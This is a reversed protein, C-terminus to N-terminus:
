TACSSSTAGFASRCGRGSWPVPGSSWCTRSHRASSASTRMNRIVLYLIGTTLAFAAAWAGLRKMYGNKVRPGEQALIEARLSNLAQTATKPDADQELGVRALSFLKVRYSDFRKALKASPNGFLRELCSQGTTEPFIIQLITLTEEVAGKLELQDAPVETTGRVRGFVIERGGAADAADPLRLMFRGPQADVRAVDAKLEGLQVLAAQPNPPAGNVGDFATQAIVSLRVLLPQYREDDHKPRLHSLVPDFQAKLDLQPQPPNDPLVITLAGNQDQQVIPM